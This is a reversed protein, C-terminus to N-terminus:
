QRGRTMELKWRHLSRAIRLLDAPNRASRAEAALVSWSQHAGAQRGFRDLFADLQADDLDRPAAVARATAARVLRAYPEAMRHERRALRVLGATNDALARKGLALARGQRRQPGFRVFAQWAVLGAALLLAFTAGLLPPELMQRLVSRPKGFGHLTLDFAVPGDGAWITRLIARASAATELSKLGHNNLLDPDALVYAGTGEDMAVVAAGTEDVIVPILEPGSVTQLSRVPGTAGLATGDPRFLRVRATTSRRKLQAAPVERRGKAEQEAPKGAPAAVPKRPVARAALPPPVLQARDIWGPRTRHPGGTWKSLVVLRSGDYPVAAVTAADHYPAPTLILLAGEDKLATRSLVVPQGTADMLRAAAAFGLASRSLAHAAGNDGKRLDPAYASLVSLAALSFVGVLVLVLVTRPSFRGGVQPDVPANM